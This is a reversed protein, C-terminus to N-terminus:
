SAPHWTAYRFITLPAEPRLLLAEVPQGEDAQNAASVQATTEWEQGPQLVITPWERIVTGEQQLSLEYARAVRDMNRVGVRVVPQHADGASLLWLETFDGSPAQAAAIIAVAAAGILLALAVGV